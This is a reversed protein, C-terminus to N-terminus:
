HLKNEYQLNKVFTIWKIIILNRDHEFPTFLKEVNGQFIINGNKDDDFLCFTYNCNVWKYYEQNYLIYDLICKESYKKYINYLFLKINSICEGNKTYVNTKCKRTIFLVINNCIILHIYIIIQIEQTTFKKLFVHTAFSKELRMRVINVFINSNTLFYKFLEYFLSETLIDINLFRQYVTSQRLLEDRLEIQIDM